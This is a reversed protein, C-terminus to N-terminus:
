LFWRPQIGKDMNSAAFASIFGSNSDFSWKQNARGFQTTKKHQLTVQCGVYSVAGGDDDKTSRTPMSVTMVMNPNFKAQILRCYCELDTLFNSDGTAPIWVQNVKYVIHFFVHDPFYLWCQVQNIVWFLTSKWTFFVKKPRRWTFGFWNLKTFDEACSNGMTSSTGDRCSTMLAGARWSWRSSAGRSTPSGWCWVATTRAPSTGMKTSSSRCNWPHCERQEKRRRDQILGLLFYSVLVYRAPHCHHDNAFVSRYQCSRDREVTCYTIPSKAANRARHLVNCTDCKVFLCNPQIQKDFIEKNHLSHNTTMPFLGVSGISVLVSQWRLPRAGWGDM